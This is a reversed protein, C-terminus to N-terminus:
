SLNASPPLANALERLWALGRLNEGIEGPVNVLRQHGAATEHIAHM